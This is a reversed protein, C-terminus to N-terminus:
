GNNREERLMKLTQSIELPNLDGISKKNDLLYSELDSVKIKFDNNKLSHTKEKVVDSLLNYAQQLKPHQLFWAAFPAIISLITKLTKWLDFAYRVLIAERETETEFTKLFEPYDEREKLIKEKTKESIICNDIDFKYLSNGKKILLVNGSRGDIMAFSDGQKFNGQIMTRYKLDKM